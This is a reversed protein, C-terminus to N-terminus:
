WVLVASACCWRGVVEVADVVLWGLVSVLVEWVVVLAWCGQALQAVSYM